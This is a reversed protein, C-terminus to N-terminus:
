KEEAPADGPSKERGELEEAVARSLEQSRRVREGRWMPGFADEHPEKLGHTLLSRVHRWNCAAVLAIGAAGVILTVPSGNASCIALGVMLVLGFIALAVISLGPLGERKRRRARDELGAIGRRPREKRQDSSNM